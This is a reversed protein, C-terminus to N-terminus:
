EPMRIERLSSAAVITGAADMAVVRWYYAKGAELYSFVSPSLVTSTDGSPLLMGTTPREGLTAREKNDGCNDACLGIALPQGYLELQYAHADSRSRWRFETGPKLTSAPAPQIVALISVRLSETLSGESVQYRLVISGQDSGPQALRLRLLYLGVEDSPLLPSQLAAERGAGLYRRVNELARFVPQGRTTAPTAVEWIADLLGARDYNISAIARLSDNKAIIEAQAGTDFRLAVRTIGLSSVGDTGIRVSRASNPSARSLKITQIAMVTVGNVSFRRVYNIDRAGLTVAQESVSGPVSVSENITFSMKEGDAPSNLRQILRRKTFGLTTGNPGDGVVFRGENSTIERFRTTPGVPGIVDSIAGPESRKVAVSGQWVMSVVSDEGVIVSGMASCPSTAGCLEITQATAPLAILALMVTLWCRTNFINM